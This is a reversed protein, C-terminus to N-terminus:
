LIVKKKGMSSRLTYECCDHEMEDSRCGGLAVPFNESGVRSLLKNFDM